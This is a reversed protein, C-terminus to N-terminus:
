ASHGKEYFLEPHSLVMKYVHDYFDNERCFDIKVGDFYLDRIVGNRQLLELGPSVNTVFNKEARVFMSYTKLRPIRDTDVYIGSFEKIRRYTIGAKIEVYHQLSFSSNFNLAVSMIHGNLQHFLAFVSNDGFAEPDNCDIFEHQLKGFAMFSYIPHKTRLGGKKKRATETVIGMESVTELADYYHNNTWSTFNFTPILLTGNPGLYDLVEELFSLPNKFFQKIPSFSSHILLVDGPAVGGKELFGSFEKSTNM